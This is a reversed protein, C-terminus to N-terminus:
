FHGSSLKLNLLSKTPNELALLGKKSQPIDFEPNDNVGRKGVM